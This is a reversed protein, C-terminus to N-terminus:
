TMRGPTNAAKLEGVEDLRLKLAADVYVDKLHSTDFTRMAAAYVDWSKLYAAEVESEVSVTTTTRATTPTTALTASPTSDGGGGCAALAGAFALALLWRTM